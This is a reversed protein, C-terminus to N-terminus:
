NQWSQNWTFYSYDQFNWSKETMWIKRSILKPSNQLDLFAAKAMKPARFNTVKTFKLRWFSCFKMFILIWLSKLNASKASRCDGFTIERLIQTISFNHFKWATFLSFNVRVQFILLNQLKVSHKLWLTHFHLFYDAVWIKRSIM